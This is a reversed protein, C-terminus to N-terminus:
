LLIKENHIFMFRQQYKEKKFNFIVYPADHDSVEETHVIDHHVVGNPMTSIVHDILTKSKRTAKTIHQHLSFSHLTDKYHHQSQKNGYLLDINFDGVIIIIGSWKIYLETLIREFKELQILKETENLSPQYVAGILVSTNKNRGQVEIRLIEISEDIKKLDHRVNFSMRQKIYLGLGGGSKSERNKFESKYGDIQVYKLQTKNNELWTESLAVIDFKYKSMM